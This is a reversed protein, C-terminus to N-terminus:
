SPDPDTLITIEQDSDKGTIVVQLMADALDRYTVYSRGRDNYLPERDRGVRFSGTYPGEPDFTLSPHVITWSIEPHEHLLDMGMRNYRSIGRLFDPHEPLEYVYKTHSADSWLAGAGGIVAFPIDKGQLIHIYAQYANLNLIPDAHFGSGFCSILADLGSLDFTEMEFLDKVILDSSEKEPKRHVFGVVELGRKKAEETVISGLKGSAGIVGLKM